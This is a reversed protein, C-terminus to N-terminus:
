IEASSYFKNLFRAMEPDTRTLPVDRYHFWRVETFESHDFHLTQQRSGRLVYWLSVDTHGATRGVTETVTVFQPEPRLFDASVALEEMVERCVTQRPHEDVDVHGGTPLWLQANIHDVLLIHDGDVLLFYAILHKAPDAPKNIRFLPADSDIWRLVDLRAAQEAADVPIIGAVEARIAQRTGVPQHGDPLRDEPM